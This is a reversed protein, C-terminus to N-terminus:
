GGCVPPLIALNQGPTIRDSDKLINEDTAFVSANILTNSIKNDAKELYLELAKRLDVVTPEDPLDLNLKTVGLQRFAGYLNLNVNIM